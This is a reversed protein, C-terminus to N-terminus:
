ANSRGLATIFRPLALATGYIYRQGLAERVGYSGIEIDSLLIDVQGEGQSWDRRMWLNEPGDAERALVYFLAVQQSLLTTLCDLGTDGAALPVFWEAKMFGHQHQEDLVQEDRLCPTWGIYGPMGAPLRGECSLQLFSQEGSAVFSGHPTQIDRCHAPRTADSYVAPVIWPLDVFAFGVEEQWWRVATQLLHLTNEALPGTVM